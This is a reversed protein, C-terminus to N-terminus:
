YYKDSYFESTMSWISQAQRSVPFFLELQTAFKSDGKRFGRKYTDEENDFVFGKSADWVRNAQKFTSWMPVADRFIKSFSIPDYFFWLESEVRSTQNYLWKLWSQTIPDEDDDDSKFSHLMLATAVSLITLWWAEKVNVYMNSRDAADLEMSDVVKRGLKNSVTSAAISGIFKMINKANDMRDIGDKPRFINFARGATNWRGERYVDEGKLMSLQYDKYRPGLRQKIAQPMWTRFLMAVRGYVQRKIGMPNLIDYDGHIEKNVKKAAEAFVFQKQPDAYDAEPYKFELKGDKVEYADWLSVDKQGPVKVKQRLMMAIATAGQNLYEGSKQFIYLHEFAKEVWEKDMYFQEQLNGLLNFQNLLLMIKRSNGVRAQGGSYFTAISEKMLGYAKRLEAENFFEDRAAYMFNSTTGMSLNSLGSIPNLGLQRVRTLNNISDLLQGGSWVREGPNGKGTMSLPDKLNGTLFADITYGLRKELNSGNKAGFRLGLPNTKGKNSQSEKPIAYALEQIGNLTDQVENKYRYAMAFKIYNTFITLPNDDTTIIKQVPKENQTGTSSVVLYGDKYKYRGETLGTKLSTPLEEGEKWYGDTGKAFDSVHKFRLKKVQRKSLPATKDYSIPNDYYKVTAIDKIFEKVERGIYKFKSMTEGDMYSFERLLKDSDYDTFSYDMPVSAQAALYEKVFFDYFEKQAPTFADYEDSKWNAKPKIAFYKAAFRPYEDTTGNLWEQMLSPDHQKLDNNYRLESFEMEGTDPNYDYYGEKLVEAFEAFEQKGEESLEYTFNEKMFQNMTGYSKTREKHANIEARLDEIRKNLELMQIKDKGRVAERYQNSVERLQDYLPKREKEFDQIEGRLDSMREYLERKYTTVPRFRGTDDKKFMFSLDKSGLKKLREDLNQQFDIMGMNISAAARRIIYDAAIELGHEGFSLGIFNSALAGIDEIVTDPSIQNLYQVPVGEDAMASTVSNWYLQQYTNYLEVANLSINRIAYLTTPDVENGDFYTSFDLWSELLNLNEWVENHTLQRDLANKMRMMDRQGINVLVEASKQEVMTDLEKQYKSIEARIRTNEASKGGRRNIRSRLGQIKEFTASIRKDLLKDGTLLHSYPANTNVNAPKRIPPEDEVTEDSGLPADQQYLVRGARQRYIQNQVMMNDVLPLYSSRLDFTQGIETLLMDFVTRKTGPFQTDHLVEAFGRDSFVANIFNDLSSFYLAPIEKGSLLAKSSLQMNEFAALTGNEAEMQLYAKMIETTILNDFRERDIRIDTGVHVAGDKFEISSGAAQKVPIKKAAKVLIGRAIKALDQNDGKIVSQLLRFSDDDGLIYSAVPNSPLDSLRRDKLDREDIFTDFSTNVKRDMYIPQIQEVNRVVYHKGNNPYTIIVGDYDENRTWGYMADAVTKETFGEPLNVMMPNKLNVFSAFDGRPELTMDWGNYWTPIDRLAQPRGLFVLEPEGNEDITKTRPTTTEDETHGAFDTYAKTRTGLWSTTAALEAQRDSLGESKYFSFLRDFLLSPKGNPAFYKCKAM